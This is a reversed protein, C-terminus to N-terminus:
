MCFFVFFIQLIQRNNEENYSETALQLSWRATLINCSIMKTFKRKQMTEDFVIQSSQEFLSFSIM